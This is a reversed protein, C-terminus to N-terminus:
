SAAGSPAAPIEIQWYSRRVDPHKLCEEVGGDALVKGEHMVTLRQVLDQVHSIKHEVILITRRGLSRRLVKLIRQIESESLGALPEDFMLLKPEVLLTMAIELLRKEGLSLHRVERDRVDELDFDHLAQVVRPERHQAKCTNFFLHLLSHKKYARYFALVLNDIVTLNDFTSTLQFTRMMGAAVRQQPSWRTVDRGQFYIAGSDPQYFGSLLNFFVTKGAGNSGLIGAIENERLVYDIGDLATLGGFRKTVAEARIIEPQTAVIANLAGEPRERAVSTNRRDTMGGDPYSYPADIGLRAGGAQLRASQLPLRM